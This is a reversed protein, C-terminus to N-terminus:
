EEKDDEELEFVEIVSLPVNRLATGIEKKAIRSAHEENEANFVDMELALGVLATEAAIFASDFPANCAPCGTVGVDVEVYAMSAENLRRGAESIAVGIADDIDQVDRVLWAAELLLRYNGMGGFLPEGIAHKTTQIARAM